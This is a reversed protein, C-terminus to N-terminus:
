SFWSELNTQNNLIFKIMDTLCINKSTSIKKLFFTRDKNSKDYLKTINDLIGKLTWCLERKDYDINIFYILYKLGTIVNGFYNKEGSKLLKEDRNYYMLAYTQCLGHSNNPQVDLGFANVNKKGVGGANIYGNAITKTGDKEERIAFYHVENGSGKRPYIGPRIHKTGDKLRFNRSLKNWRDKSYPKPRFIGVSKLYEESSIVELVFQVIENYIEQDM